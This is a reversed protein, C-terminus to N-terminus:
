DKLIYNCSKKYWKKMNKISSKSWEKKPALRLYTRLHYISRECNQRSNSSTSYVIALSWHSETYLSDVELSKLSYDICKQNTMSDENIMNLKYYCMSIDEFYHAKNLTISDPNITMLEALRGKVYTTDVPGCTMINHKLQMALYDGSQTFGLKSCTLSFLLLYFKSM